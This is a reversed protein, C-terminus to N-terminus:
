FLRAQPSAPKKKFPQVVIRETLEDPLCQLFRSPKPAYTKGFLTRRAAHSLFLREKARTLAVYLLRHEEAIRDADNKEDPRLYPFLGEEVGAVFVVPFELGKAAHATLLTVCEGSLRDDEPRALEARALLARVADALPLDDYGSAIGELETLRELELRTTGQYLGDHPQHTRVSLEKQMLRGTVEKVIDSLRTSRQADARQVDSTWLNSLHGLVARIEPREFFGIGGVTRFPIGARALAAELLPALAHLRYIVAIDGFSYTGAGARLLDAGGVELEIARVIWLAEARDSPASVICPQTETATHAVGLTACTRQAVSPTACPGICANAISVIAPTSRYNHDLKLVRADTYRETFSAFHRPDAGRFSYIAQDPDGIVCLNRHETALLDLLESQLANTDQYEDALIFDFRGRYRACVDEYTRLLELARPLLSDFDLVLGSLTDRRARKEDVVRFSPPVGIREGHERLLAHALAHFTTIVPSRYGTVPLKPRNVPSQREHLVSAIRTRMEDAAKNTFTIALIREPAVRHEGALRCVREVLVRTKGSGPGATIIVPGDLASVAAEQAPDLKHLSKEM